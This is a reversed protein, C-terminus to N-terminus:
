SPVEIPRPRYEYWYRLITEVYDRTEQPLRQNVTLWDEHSAYLKQMRGIGWNYSALAYRTDGDFRDLLWRM